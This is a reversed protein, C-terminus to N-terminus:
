RCPAPPVGLVPTQSFFVGGSFFVRAFNLEFFVLDSAPYCNRGRSQLAQPERLLPEPFVPTTAPGSVHKVPIRFGQSLSGWACINARACPANGRNRFGRNAFGRNLPIGPLRYAAVLEGDDDHDDAVVCQIGAHTCERM